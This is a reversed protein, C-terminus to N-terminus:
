FRSQFYGGCPGVKCRKSARFHPNSEGSRALIKRHDRCCPSLLLHCYLYDRFWPPLKSLSLLHLRPSYFLMVPCRSSICSTKREDVIGPMRLLPLKQVEEQPASDIRCLSKTDVSSAFLLERERVGGSYAM